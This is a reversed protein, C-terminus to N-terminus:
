HVSNYGLAKPVENRILSITRTGRPFVLAIYGWMCSPEGALAFRGAVLFLTGYAGDFARSPNLLGAVGLVVRLPVGVTLAAVAVTSANSMDSLLASQGPKEIHIFVLGSKKARSADDHDTSLQRAGM